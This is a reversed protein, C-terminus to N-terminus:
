PEEKKGKEETAETERSNLIRDISQRDIVQLGISKSGPLVARPEEAEEEEQGPPLVLGSKSGPLITRGEEQEAAPEDSRGNRWGTGLWGKGGRVEVRVPGTGDGLVLASKSGPLMMQERAEAEKLRTEESKKQSWWVYGGGLAVTSCLALVKLWIAASKMGAAYRPFVGRM